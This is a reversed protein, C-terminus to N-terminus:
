SFFPNHRIENNISTKNGHGPYVITDLPLTFLKKIISDALVDFSGTPLDTRGISGEFLVDGVIVFKDKESYFCISGDAHGPTYIVLLSSNGFTIVEGEKVFFDPKILGKLNFGLIDAYNKAHSLFEAGAEHIGYKIEYHKSIYYNGVIHDIHCHTNFFLVPKLENDAIFSKFRDFEGDDNFAPDIIICEKTEDYLLFTNVQYPNFTFVKLYM